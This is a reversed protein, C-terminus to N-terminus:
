AGFTLSEIIPLVETLYEDLPAGEPGVEIVVNGGNWELLYLREHFGPLIVHHVLSTGDGIIFPVTSRGDSWPCTVPSRNPVRRGREDM